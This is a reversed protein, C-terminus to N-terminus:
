DVFRYRLLAVLSPLGDRWSIKKGEHHSRAQYSIPREELRWKGRLIKATIESDARFDNSRIELDNLVERRMVKYCTHIDSITTQFLVRTLASFCRNAVLHHLMFSRQQQGECLRSGYVVDAEDALIPQILATLDAPNYELDADQVAIVRGRAHAFGLRLAAGKGRNAAQRFLVIEDDDIRESLVLSTGDISCDDVVIIEKAFPLLKLRDLVTGVTRAENFVPVIISVEIEDSSAPAIAAIRLSGAPGAATPEQLTAHASSEDRIASISTEPLRSTPVASRRRATAYGLTGCQEEGFLPILSGQAAL